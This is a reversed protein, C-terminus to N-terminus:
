KAINRSYKSWRREGTKSVLGAEILSILERQITKESVDKIIVAIDKISLEKKKKLLGIIIGQRNNSKFANNDKIALSDKVSVLNRLTNTHLITNTNDFFTNPIVGNTSDTKHDNKLSDLLNSFEQKIISFNMNSVLGALLSVELLSVIESIKTRSNNIFNNLESQRVDKYSMIFSLLESVKRRLTWKMPENDSLLNTVLYVASALKETKKTIFAFDSQDDYFSDFQPKKPSIVETNTKELNTNEM